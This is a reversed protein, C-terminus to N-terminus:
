SNIALPIYTFNIKQNTLWQLIDKIHLSKDFSFKFKFSSLHQLQEILIQIQNIDSIDIDLHKINRPIM